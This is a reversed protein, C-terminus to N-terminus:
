LSKDCAPVGVAHLDKADWWDQQDRGARSRLRWFGWSYRTLPTEGIEELIAAGYSHIFPTAKFNQRIRWILKSSKDM